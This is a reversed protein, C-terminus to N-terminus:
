PQKLPEPKLQELKALVDNLLGYKQMDAFLNLCFVIQNAGVPNAYCHALHKGTDANIVSYIPKKGADRKNVRYYHM